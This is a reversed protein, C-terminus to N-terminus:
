VEVELKDSDIYKINKFKAKFKLLNEKKHGIIKSKLPAPAKIILTKATKGDIMSTIKDYYYKSMVLEGFAEHYAGIVKDPRIEDSSMLGLRIIPIDAECFFSYIKSCIDVTESLSKTKYEQNKYLEFLKTDGIVVTPYIRVFDPKLRIIEKATFIDDENESGYMSTMMQIGLFFGYEKIKSVANITDSVTMGRENMLLSRFLM